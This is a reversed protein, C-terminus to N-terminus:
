LVFEPLLCCVVLSPSGVLGSKRKQGAVRDAEKGWRAKSMRDWARTKKQVIIRALRKSQSGRVRRVSPESTGSIGTWLRTM